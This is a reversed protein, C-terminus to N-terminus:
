IRMKKVMNRNVGNTQDKNVPVNSNLIQIHVHMSVDIDIYIYIKKEHHFRMYEWTKVVEM